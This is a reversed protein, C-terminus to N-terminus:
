PLNQHLVGQGTGHNAEMRGRRARARRPAFRAPQLEQATRRVAKLMEKVLGDSYEQSLTVEKGELPVCQQLAEPSLKRMLANAM